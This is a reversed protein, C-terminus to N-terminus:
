LSIDAAKIPKKEMLSEIAQLTMQTAGQLSDLTHKARQGMEDLSGPNKFLFMDVLGKGESVVQAGGTELFKQALFYFNDMHPGFFVPKRHFAPELLNHGGWPVLSGGIFSVDSLAYFTSLDGITDLIFVDWDKSWLGSSKREVRFGLDLSMRAIEDSRQPHRPAIILLINKKVKRAEAFAQLLKGEEGKRTSGAVVVKNIKEIGLNEKLKIIEEESLSAPMVETKLNGAVKILSPHIGINELHEKDKKTQMLFYTINKLIKRSCIRVARYRRASRESIRGNILLVGNTQKHAQKLLNPWFESEALIFVDPRLSKFFNKIVMGFDLPAFFIHDAGKLNDRAVRIGTNTLTSFHLIWDPHKEKIMKILNQLSLVEGVSVAHIWLSKKPKDRVVLKWGIREKLYLREGRKMRMRVFYGPIYILLALFLLSSYLIYM